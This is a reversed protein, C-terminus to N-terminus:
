EDGNKLLKNQLEKIEKQMNKLAIKKGEKELINKLAQKEYNTLNYWFDSLENDSNKRKYEQEKREDEEFELYYM